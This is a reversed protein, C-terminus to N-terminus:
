GDHPAAAVRGLASQLFQRTHEVAARRCRLDRLDSLTRDENHVPNTLDAAAALIENFEEEALSVLVHLAGLGSRLTIHEHTTLDRM